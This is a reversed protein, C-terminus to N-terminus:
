TLVKCKDSNTNKADLSSDTNHVVSQTLPNKKRRMVNEWDNTTDTDSFEEWARLKRQRPIHLIFIKERVCKVGETHRQKEKMKERKM